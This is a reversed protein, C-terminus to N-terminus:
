GSFVSCLVLRLFFIRVHPKECQRSRTYVFRPKELGAVYEGSKDDHLYKFKKAQLNATLPIENVSIITAM